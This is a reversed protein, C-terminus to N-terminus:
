TAFGLTVVWADGRPNTGAAYLTVAPSDSIEIARLRDARAAVDTAYLVGADADGSVIRDAVADVLTEQAVVNLASVDFRERTFDGLPIGAIEIVVRTAPDALISADRATSSCPVAVVLRNAAFPRPEHLLGAAHLRLAHADGPAAFADAPEGAEIRRALERANAYTM